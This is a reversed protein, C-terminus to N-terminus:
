LAYKLKESLIHGPGEKHGNITCNIRLLTLSSALATVLSAIADLAWDQAWIAVGLRAAKRSM